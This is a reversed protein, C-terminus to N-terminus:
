LCSEVATDGNRVTERSLVFHRQPASLYKQRLVVAVTLSNRTFVADTALAFFHTCVAIGGTGFHLFSSPISFM